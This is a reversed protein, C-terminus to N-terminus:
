SKCWRYSQLTRIHNLTTLLSFYRLNLRAHLLSVQHCFEFTWQSVILFVSPHHYLLSCLTEIKISFLSQPTVKPQTETCSLHVSVCVSCKVEQGPLVDLWGCLCSFMCRAARLVIYWCIGTELQSDLGKLIFEMVGVRRDWQWLQIYYRQSLQVSM